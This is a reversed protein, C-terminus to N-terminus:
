SVTAKYKGFGPHLDVKGAADIPSTITWNCKLDANPEKLNNKGDICMCVPVGNAGLMCGAEGCNVNFNICPHSPVDSLLFMM